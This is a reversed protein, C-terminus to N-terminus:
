DDSPVMPALYARIEGGGFSYKMEVPKDTDLGITVDQSLKSNFIECFLKYSFEVKFEQNGLRMNALMYELPLMKNVIRDYSGLLTKTGIHLEKGDYWIDLNEPNCVSMGGLVSSLVNTPMTMIMKHNIGHVDIEDTDIDLLPFTVFASDGMQVHLTNCDVALVLSSPMHKKIVKCIHQVNLGLRISDVLEYSSFFSRKLRLLCLTTMSDGIVQATMGTDDFYLSVDSKINSVFDLAHYFTKVETICIEM